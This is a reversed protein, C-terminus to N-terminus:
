EGGIPRSLWVGVGGAHSGAPVMGAIIDDRGDGDLDHLRIDYAAGTELLNDAMERIFEGDPNQVYVELGGTKRGAVLDTYGDGNVDGLALRFFVGAREEDIMVPVGDRWGQERFAFPYAILGNRMRTKNQIVRFQAFTAFIEGDSAEVDYHYAGSLVGSYPAAKWTRGTQNLYALRREGVTNSSLVLDTRGDGDVDATRLVDAITNTALGGSVVTWGGAERYLVWLTPAQDIQDNTRLDYDIEAAFALDTRGDGDFDEAVVARSTVRPDPSPLQEVRVFKGQGDGYLLYQAGFHVAVAIDKHGDGDFDGTAIGGYDLPLSDPWGFDKWDTFTGDGNGLLITLLPPYQKRRPPFILDANGDGNMDDVTFGMQWRGGAPLNDDVMEFRLSNQFPPPVLETGFDLFYVAGPTEAAELQDLLRAERVQRQAWVPYLPSRPDEPPIGRLWVHEEDERVIEMRISAVIHPYAYRDDIKVVYKKDFPKPTLWDQIFESWTQDPKNKWYEMLEQAREEPMRSADPKQPLPLNQASGVAAAALVLILVVTWRMANM